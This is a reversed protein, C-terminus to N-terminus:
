AALRDVDIIRCDIRRPPPATSQVPVRRTHDPRVDEIVVSVTEVVRAGARRRFELDIFYTSATSTDNTVRLVATM